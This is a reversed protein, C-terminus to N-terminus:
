QNYTPIAFLRVIVQTLPLKKRLDKVLVEPCIAGGTIVGKLSSLDVGGMGDMIKMVDSFM